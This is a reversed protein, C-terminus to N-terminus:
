GFVAVGFVWYLVGVGYGWVVMFSGFHSFIIFFLGPFFYGTSYLVSLLSFVFILIKLKLVKFVEM